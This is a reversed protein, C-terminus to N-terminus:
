NLPPVVNLKCAKSIVFEDALLDGHDTFRCNAALSQVDLGDQYQGKELLYDALTHRLQEITAGPLIALSLMDKQIYRKFKGLLRLNIEIAKLATQM